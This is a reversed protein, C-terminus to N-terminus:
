VHARGIKGPAMFTNPAGAYAGAGVIMGACLILTRLVGTTFRTNHIRTTM